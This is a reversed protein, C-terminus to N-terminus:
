RKHDFTPYYRSLKSNTFINVGSSMLQNVLSIVSVYYRIIFSDISFTYHIDHMTTVFVIRKNYCATVCLDAIHNELLIVLQGIDPHYVYLTSMTSLTDYQHNLGFDRSFFLCVGIFLPHQTLWWIYLPVPRLQPPTTDKRFSELPNNDISDESDKSAWTCM